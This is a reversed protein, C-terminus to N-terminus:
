KQTYLIVFDAAGNSSCANVAALSNSQRSVVTTWSADTVDSELDSVLDNPKDTSDDVADAWDMSVSLTFMEMDIDANVDSIEKDHLPSSEVNPPTVQQLDLDSSVLGQLSSEELGGQEHLNGLPSQVQTHPQPLPQPKPSVEDAKPKHLYSM